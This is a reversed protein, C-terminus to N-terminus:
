DRALRRFSDPMAPWRRGSMPDTESYRYGRKDTVWGVDGCTTMAVSMTYGGPTVMNRFPAAEVVRRLDAVLASEVAIAYRHLLVAGPGLPTESELDLSM